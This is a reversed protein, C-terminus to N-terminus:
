PCTKRTGYCIDQCCNWASLCDNVCDSRGKLTKKKDCNNTCTTYASQCSKLCDAQTAADLPTTALFVLVGAVLVLCAAAIFWAQKM